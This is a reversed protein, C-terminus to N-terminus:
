QFKEYDIMEFDDYINPIFIGIWFDRQNSKYFTLDENWDQMEDIVEKNLLGLEDRYSDSEVKYILAKYREQNKEFSIRGGIQNVSIFVLMIIAIIVSAVTVIAGAYLFYGDADYCLFDHLKKHSKEDIWRDAMNPIFVIFVGIAILILSLWFLM